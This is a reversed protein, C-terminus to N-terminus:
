QEYSVQIKSKHKCIYEKETFPVLVLFCNGM